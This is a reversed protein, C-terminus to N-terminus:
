GDPRCQPRQSVELCVVHACGARLCGAVALQPHLGDLGLPVALALEFLLVPVLEEAVALGHAVQGGGRECWLQYGSVGLGLDDERDPVRLGPVLLGGGGLWRM